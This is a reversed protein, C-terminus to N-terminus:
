DERRGTLSMRKRLCTPSVIGACYEAMKVILACQAFEVVQEFREFRLYDRGPENEGFARQPM